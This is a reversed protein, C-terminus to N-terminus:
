HQTIDKYKMQVMTKGCVTKCFNACGSDPFSASQGIAFNMLHLVFVSNKDQCDQDM